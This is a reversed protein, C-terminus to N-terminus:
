HEMRMGGMDPKKAEVEVDNAPNHAAHSAAASVARTWGYATTGAPQDRRVKVVGFM